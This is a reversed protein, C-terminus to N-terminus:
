GLASTILLYIVASLCSLAATLIIRELRFHDNQSEPYM